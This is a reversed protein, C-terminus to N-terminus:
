VFQALVTIQAVLAELADTGLANSMTQACLVPHSVHLRRLSFLFPRLM